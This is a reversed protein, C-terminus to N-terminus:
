QMTYKITAKCAVRGYVVNMKYSINRVNSWYKIVARM